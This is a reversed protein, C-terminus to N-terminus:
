MDGCRRCFCMATPPLSSCLKEGGQTSQGVKKEQLRLLCYFACESTFVCFQVTRKKTINCSSETGRKKWRISILSKHETECQCAAIFVYFCGLTHLEQEEFTEMCLIDYVQLPRISEFHENHTTQWVSKYQQALVWVYKCAKEQLSMKKLEISLMLCCDYM